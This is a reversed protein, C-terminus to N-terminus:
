ILICRQERRVGCNRWAAWMTMTATLSSFIPLFLMKRKLEELYKQAQAAPDIAVAKGGASILLFTNTCLPWPGSIHILKM